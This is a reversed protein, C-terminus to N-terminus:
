WFNSEREGSDATRQGSLRRSTVLNEVFLFITLTCNIQVRVENIM